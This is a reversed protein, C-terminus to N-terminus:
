NKCLAITDSLVNKEHFSFIRMLLINLAGIFLFMSKKKTWTKSKKHLPSLAFFKSLVNLGNWNLEHEM